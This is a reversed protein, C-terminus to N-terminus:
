LVLVPEVLETVRVRFRVRVDRHPSRHQQQQMRHLHPGGGTMSAFASTCKQRHGTPACPCLLPAFRRQRARERERLEGLIRCRRRALYARLTKQIVIAGYVGAQKTVRDLMEIVSAAEFVNPDASSTMLMCLRSPEEGFCVSTELLQGLFSEHFSITDHKHIARKYLQPSHGLSLLSQEFSGLAKQICAQAPRPPPPAPRPVAPASVPPPTLPHATQPPGKAEHHQPPPPRIPGRRPKPQDGAHSMGDPQQEKVPGQVIM